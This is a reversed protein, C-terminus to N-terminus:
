GTLRRRALYYPLNKLLYLPWLWDRKTLSLLANLAQPQFLPYLTMRAAWAIADAELTSLGPEGIHNQRFEDWIKFYVALLASRQHKEVFTEGKIAKQLCAIEQWSVSVNPLYAKVAGSSIKIANDFQAASYLHTISNSHLRYYLVIEPLNEGKAVLLFRSWLEYDEEGYIAWPQYRLEFQNMISTRLMVTPNFFPNEFLLNWRISLDGHFQPPTGLLKGSEDMYRMGAGLVGIEPHAEMFEVQRSFRDPLSMDDSDMRAIYKGQAIELGANCATSVGQNRELRILRIRPDAQGFRAAIDWSGDKSGDDIIIFEFNRYTQELISQVAQELFREANFMSMIVSVFPGNQM